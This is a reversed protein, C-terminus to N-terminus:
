AARWRAPTEGMHGKFANTLHAQSAFGVALAIDAVTRQRESRLLHAARAIRMQLVYRHPTMGFTASFLRSFHFPSIGVEAAMREVSLETDLFTDVLDRIKAQQTASLQRVQSANQMPKCAHHRRLWGVIMLSMGEAYLMGNPFGQQMEDALAFMTRVLSDDRFSYKTDLDFHFADEQIYREIISPHLRLCVTEGGPDCEWRGYDREYNAGMTDVGPAIMPIEQTTGNCRYWRRGQSHRLAAIVVPMGSFQPGCEVREPIAKRELVLGKWELPRRLAPQGDDGMVHSVHAGVLEKQKSMVGEGRQM